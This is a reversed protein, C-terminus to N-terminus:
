NPFKATGTLTCTKFCLVKNSINPTVPGCTHGVHGSVILPTFCNCLFTFKQPSMGSTYKDLAKLDFWKRDLVNLTITTTGNLTSRSSLKGTGFM